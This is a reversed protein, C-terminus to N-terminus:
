LGNGSEKEHRFHANLSIWVVLWIASLIIFSTNGILFGVWTSTFEFGSYGGSLGAQEILEALETRLALVSRIMWFGYIVISIIFLFVLGMFLNYFGAKTAHLDLLHEKNIWIAVVIAACFAVSSVWWSMGTELLMQLFQEKSEILAVTVDINARNM